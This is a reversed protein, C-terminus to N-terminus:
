RVRGRCSPRVLKGRTSCAGGRGPVSMGGGLKHFFGILGEPGASPVHEELVQGGIHGSGWVILVGGGEGWM